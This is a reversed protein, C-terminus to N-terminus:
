VGTANTEETIESVRAAENAMGDLLLLLRYARFAIRCRQIFPSVIWGASGITLTGQYGNQVQHPETYEAVERVAPLRYELKSNLDIRM